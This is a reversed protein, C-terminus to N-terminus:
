RSQNSDAFKTPLSIVIIVGYVIMGLNMILLITTVLFKFKAYSYLAKKCVFFSGVLM